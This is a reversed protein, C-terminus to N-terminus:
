RVRNPNKVPKGERFNPCEWVPSVIGHKICNEYTDQAIKCNDYDDPKFNECKYCLCYWFHKGKLDDRVWVDQDFHSYKTYNRHNYYSM